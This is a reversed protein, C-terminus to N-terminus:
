VRHMRWLYYGIPLLTAVNPIWFGLWMPIAGSEGYSKGLNMLIYYMFIALITMAYCASRRGLGSQLGLLAGLVAMLFGAVPMSGRRALESEMRKMREHSFEDKYTEYSSRSEDRADRLQANTYGYEVRGANAWRNLIPQLDLAFRLSDFEIVVDRYPSPMQHLNGDEMVLELENRERSYRITASPSAVVGAIRRERQEFLRMNMTGDNSISSAYLRFPGLRTFAGPQIGATATDQLVDKALARFHSLGGPATSNAWWGLMLMMFVGLIVPPILLHRPSYGVAQLAISENDQVMRGYVMMTALLVAMPLTQIMISPLLAFLLQMTMVISTGGAVFLDTLDFLRRMLFVFTFLLVGEAVGSFLDLLTVRTYLRIM